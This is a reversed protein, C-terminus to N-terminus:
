RLHAAMLRALLHDKGSMPTPDLIEQFRSFELFCFRQDAFAKSLYRMFNIKQTLQLHGQISLSLVGFGVLHSGANPLYPLAFVFLLPNGISRRDGLRRPGPDHCLLHPLKPHPPSPLNTRDSPFATQWSGRM